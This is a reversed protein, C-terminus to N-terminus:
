DSITHKLQQLQATLQAITKIFHQHSEHTTHKYLNRYIYIYIYICTTQTYIDVNNRDTYIHICLYMFVYM